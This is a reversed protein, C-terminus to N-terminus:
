LFNIRWRFHGTIIETISIVVTLRRPIAIVGDGHFFISCGVMGNNEGLGSGAGLSVPRHPPWLGNNWQELM